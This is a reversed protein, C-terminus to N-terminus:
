QDARRAISQQEMQEGPRILLRAHQDGGAEAEAFPTAVEAIGLHRGCEEIAEGVM